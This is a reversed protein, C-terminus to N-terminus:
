RNYPYGRPTNNNQFIYEEILDDLENTALQDAQLLEM